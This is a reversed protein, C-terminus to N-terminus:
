RQISQVHLPEKKHANIMLRLYSPKSHLTQKIKKLSTSYSFSLSEARLQPRYTAGPREVNLFAQWSVTLDYTAQVQEWRQSSCTIDRRVAMGSLAHPIM